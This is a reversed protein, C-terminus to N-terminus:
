QHRDGASAKPQAPLHIVQLTETRRGDRYGADYGLQFSETVPAISHGLMAIVTSPAVVGALLAVLPACHALHLDGTLGVYAVRCALLLAIVWSVVAVWKALTHGRGRARQM